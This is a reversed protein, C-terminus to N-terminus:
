PYHFRLYHYKLSKLMRALMLVNEVHCASPGDFDDLRMWAASLQIGFMRYASVGSGFGSLPWRHIANNNNSVNGSFCVFCFGDLLCFCFVDRVIIRGRARGIASFRGLATPICVDWWRAPNM